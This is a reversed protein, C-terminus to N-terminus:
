TKKNSTVVQLTRSHKLGLVGGLFLGDGLKTNDCMAFIDPPKLLRFKVRQRCDQQIKICQLIVPPTLSHFM